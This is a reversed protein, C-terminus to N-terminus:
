SPMGLIERETVVVESMCACVCIEDAVGISQVELMDGAGM